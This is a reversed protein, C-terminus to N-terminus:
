SVPEAGYGAATIEDVIRQVDTVGPDYDVETIGTGLDTKVSDVGELDGVNLQILTACSMCHMGTTKISVHAVLLGRETGSKM